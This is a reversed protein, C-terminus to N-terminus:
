ESRASSLGSHMTQAARKWGPICSKELGHKIPCGALHKRCPSMCRTEAQKSPTGGVQGACKGPGRLATVTGVAQTHRARVAARARLVACASRGPDALLLTRLENLRLEKLSVHAWAHGRSGAEM